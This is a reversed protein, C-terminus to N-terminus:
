EEFMEAIQDNSGDINDPIIYKGNDVGIIYHFKKPREAGLGRMISIVKEFPTACNHQEKLARSEDKFSPSAIIFIASGFPFAM